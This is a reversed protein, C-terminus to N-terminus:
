ASHDAPPKRYGIMRAVADRLITDAAPIGAGIPLQGVERLAAIGHSLAWVQLGLLSPDLDSREAPIAQRIATVLHEFAPTSRERTAPYESEVPTPRCRAMFMAAYFGPERHAFDLYASGMREFADVASGPASLASHLADSFVAFGRQAVEAVLADRDKFHRYPAAPSVGAMRAAEVLTFGQPGKEAILQRAAEVLAERLNGHHYGKRARMMDSMGISTFDDSMSRSDVLNRVSALPKDDRAASWWRKQRGVISITKDRTGM